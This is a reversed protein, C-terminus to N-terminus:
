PEKKTKFALTLINTANRDIGKDHNDLTQCMDQLAQM